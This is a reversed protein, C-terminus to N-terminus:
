RLASYVQPLGFESVVFCHPLAKKVTAPAVQHGTEQQDDQQKTRVHGNTEHRCAARRKQQLETGRGNGGLHRRVVRVM